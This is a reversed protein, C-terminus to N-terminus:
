QGKGGVAESGLGAAAQPEGFEDGGDDSSDGNLGPATAQNPEGDAGAGSPPLAWTPAGYTKAFLLDESAPVLLNIENETERMSMGATRETWAGTAKELLGSLPQKNYRGAEYGLRAGGTKAKKWWDRFTAIRETFYDRGRVGGAAEARALLRRLVNDM